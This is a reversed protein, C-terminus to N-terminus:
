FHPLPSGQLASQLVTAAYTLDTQLPTSFSCGARWSEPAEAHIGTLLVFGKGFNGEVIAPTGDPFKAVVEGWGSLQPGDEWYMELVSGDPFSLNVPEKHIGRNEDQYFNFWVGSTLDVGNYVSFGGYFAGACIGLYNLGQQVASRINASAGPSLSSGITISNGGPVILLQHSALEPVSAANLQSEDATTYTVNSSALLSKWATVDSASTGAGVYLLVPSGKPVPNGPPTVASMKPSAGGCGLGMAALVLTFAAVLTKSRGFASSRL